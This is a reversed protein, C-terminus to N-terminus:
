GRRAENELVAKYTPCDDAHFYVAECGACGVWRTGSSDHRQDNRVVRLLVAKSAIM